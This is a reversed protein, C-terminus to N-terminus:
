QAARFDLSGALWRSSPHHGARGEERTSETEPLHQHSAGGLHPGGPSRGEPRQTVQRNPLNVCWWLLM